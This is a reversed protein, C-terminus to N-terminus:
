EDDIGASGADRQGVLDFTQRERLDSGLNRSSSWRLRRPKNRKMWRERVKQWTVWGTADNNIRRVECSVLATLSKVRDADSMAQLERFRIGDLIAGVRKWREFYEQYQQAESESFKRPATERSKAM